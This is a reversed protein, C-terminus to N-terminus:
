KIILEVFYYNADVEQKDVKIFYISNIKTGSYDQKIESAKSNISFIVKIYDRDKFVGELILGNKYNYQYDKCKVNVFLLDNTDFFSEDLPYDGIDFEPTYGQVAEYIELSSILTIGKNLYYEDCAQYTNIVAYKIPKKIGINIQYNCSSFFLCFILSIIFKIFRNRKM